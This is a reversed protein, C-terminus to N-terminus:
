TAKLTKSRPTSKGMDSLIRIKEKILILTMRRSNSRKRVKLFRTLSRNSLLFPIIPALSLVFSTRAKIIKDRKGDM